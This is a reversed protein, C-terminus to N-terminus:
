KQKERMRKKEKESENTRKERENGVTGRTTYPMRKYTQSDAVWKSGFM